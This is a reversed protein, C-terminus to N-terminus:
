VIFYGTHRCAGIVRKDLKILGERLFRRFTRCHVAPDILIGHSRIGACSLTYCNGGLHRIHAEPTARLNLLIVKQATTLRRM